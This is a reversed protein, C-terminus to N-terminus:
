NYFVNVENSKTKIIFHPTHLFKTYPSSQFNIKLFIPFRYNHFFIYETADSEAVPPDCDVDLGRFVTAQAALIKLNFLYNILIQM